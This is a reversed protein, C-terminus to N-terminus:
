HIPACAGASVSRGLDSGEVLVSFGFLTNAGTRYWSNMKWQVRLFRVDPHRALDVRTVYDGCYHKPPLTVLPVPGWDAGDSSGWISITLSEQQVIHDIKLRVTLSGGQAPPIEIAPGFGDDQALCNGVLYKPAEGPHIGPGVFEAGTHHQTM